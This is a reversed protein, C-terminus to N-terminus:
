TLRLDREASYIGNDRPGIVSMRNPDPQSDTVAAAQDHQLCVPCRVYKVVSKTLDDIADRKKGEPMAGFIDTKDGPLTDIAARCEGFVGPPNGQVLARLAENMHGVAGNASLAASGLPFKRLWPIIRGYDGAVGCRSAQRWRRTYALSARQTVSDPLGSIM